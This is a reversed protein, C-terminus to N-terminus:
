PIRSLVFHREFGDCPEPMWRDFANEESNRSQCSSTSCAVIDMGAKEQESFRRKYHVLEHRRKLLKPLTLYKEM